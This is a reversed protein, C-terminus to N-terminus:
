AQLEHIFRIIWYGFWVIVALILIMKKNGSRVNLAIKRGTVSEYILACLLIFLTIYLFPGLFHHSFASGPNFHAFEYFSHTLGCTPCSYGTLSKFYCKPLPFQEPQVIVPTFLVLFLIVIALVRGPIYLLRNNQGKIRITLLDTVRM